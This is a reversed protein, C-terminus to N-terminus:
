EPPTWDFRSRAMGELGRVAARLIALSTEVAIVQGPQDPVPIIFAVSPEGSAMGQELVVARWAGDNSHLVIQEGPRLAGDADDVTIAQLEISPM